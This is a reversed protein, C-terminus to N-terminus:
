FFHSDTRSTEPLLKPAIEAHAAELLKPVNENVIKIATLQRPTLNRTGSQRFM